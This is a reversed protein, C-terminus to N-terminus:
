SVSLGLVAASSHAFLVRFHEFHWRGSSGVDYGLASLHYFFM